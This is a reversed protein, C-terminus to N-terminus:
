SSSARSAFSSTSPRSRACSRLPRWWSSRLAQGGARVCAALRARARASSLGDDAHDADALPARRHTRTIARRVARASLSPPPPSKARPNECSPLRRGNMKKQWARSLVFPVFSGRALRAPERGQLCITLSIFRVYTVSDELQPRAARVHSVCHALRTRSDDDIASGLPPVRLPWSARARGATPHGLVVVNAPAPCRTPRTPRGPRGPRTLCVRSRTLAHALDVASVLLRRDTPRQRLASERNMERWTTARVSAPRSPAASASRRRVNPRAGTVTRSQAPVALAM